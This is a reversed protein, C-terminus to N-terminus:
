RSSKAKSELLKMIWVVSETYFDQFVIQRGDPSITTVLMNRQAIGYSQPEGGEAPMTLIEVKQEAWQQRSSWILNRGDRSWLIVSVPM